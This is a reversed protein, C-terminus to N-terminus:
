FESKALRAILIDTMQAATHEGAAISRVAQSIPMEIGHQAALSTITQCALAGEVVMHTRQQYAELTGGHALELGFARNRSHESTCTAILDGMGALGMCTMSDGGLQTVLRSIEALGRTMLMATTNDGFGLGDSIGCAIAIINKAAGCLQTGITDSSTYVRFTPTNFLEQFFSATQSSASAVVTASPLSRVVEEAHNPGTLVALRESNGLAEALVDLLLRGSGAEIGKSLQVVPLEAAVGSAAIQGAIQPLASSPTVLVVAEADELANALDSTASVATPFEVDSLYNPNRHSQSIQEALEPSRAWLRVQHQKGGLLWAVASGWSGAGVVTVNM